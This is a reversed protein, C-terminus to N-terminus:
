EDLWGRGPQWWDHGPTRDAHRHDHHPQRRCLSQLLVRLLDPSAGEDRVLFLVHIFDISASPASIGATAAASVRAAAAYVPAPKAAAQPSLRGRQSGGEGDLDEEFRWVQCVEGSINEVSTRFYGCKHFFTLEIKCRCNHAAM